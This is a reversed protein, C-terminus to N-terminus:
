KEVKGVMAGCGDEVPLEKPPERFDVICDLLLAIDNKGREEALLEDSAMSVRRIDVMKDLIISEYRNM